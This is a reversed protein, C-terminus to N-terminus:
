GSALHLAWYRWGGRRDRTPVAVTQASGELYRPDLLYGDHAPSAQWAAVVGAADWDGLALLEARDTYPSSGCANAREGFTRGDRVEHSFTNTEALERTMWAASYGLVPSPTLPAVGHDLRYTNVHGLVAAEEATTAADARSLACGSGPPPHGVGLVGAARLVLAAGLLGGLVFLRVAVETM